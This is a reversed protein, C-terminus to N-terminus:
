DGTQINSQGYAEMDQDKFSLGFKKMTRQTIEVITNQGWKPQISTAPDNTVRGAGDRQVGYVIDSCQAVYSLQATANVMPLIKYIVQGAVAGAYDTYYWAGDPQDSPPDIPDNLIAGEQDKRYYFTKQNNILMALHYLLDSPLTMFGATITIPPALITFPSLLTLITQDQILGTNGGAKDNNRNQWRGIIDQHYAYQESNWAYFLDTRSISGTQNKRCLFKTFEM